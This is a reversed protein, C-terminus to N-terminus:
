IVVRGLLMRSIDKQDESAPAEAEHEFKASAEAMGPTEPKRDETM